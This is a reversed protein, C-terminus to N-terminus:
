APLAEAVDRAFAGPSDLMLHHGRAPVAAVGAATVAASRM